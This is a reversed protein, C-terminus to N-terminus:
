TTPAEGTGWCTLCLAEQKDPSDHKKRAGIRFTESNQGAKCDPCPLVASAQAAPKKVAKRAAM